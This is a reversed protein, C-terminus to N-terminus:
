EICSNHRYWGTVEYGNLKLSTRDMVIVGYQELAHLIRLEDDAVIGVHPLRGKIMMAVDLPAPREIKHWQTWLPSTKFETIVSALPDRGYSTVPLGIDVGRRALLVARVLGWCDYADPGGAGPEWRKGLWSAAWHM